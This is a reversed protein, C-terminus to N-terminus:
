RAVILADLINPGALEQASNVAIQRVYFSPVTGRLAIRGQDISVTLDRVRGATREHVCSHIRQLNIEDLHCSKSIAIM